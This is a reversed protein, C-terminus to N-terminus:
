LLVSCLEFALVLSLLFSNYLRNTIDTCLLRWVYPNLLIQRGYITLSLGSLNVFQYTFLINSDLTIEFTVWQLFSAPPSNLHRGPTSLYFSHATHAPYPSHGAQPCISWGCVVATEWSCGSSGLIITPIHSQQQWIKKAKWSFSPIQIKM